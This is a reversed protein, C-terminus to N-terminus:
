YLPPPSDPKGYGATFTESVVPLKMQLSFETKEVHEIEVTFALKPRHWVDLSISGTASTVNLMPTVQGAEFWGTAKSKDANHHDYTFMAEEPIKAEVGFIVDVSGKYTIGIGVETYINAGITIFHPIVLGADPIPIKQSERTDKWEDPKGSYTFKAEMELKALVDQPTM